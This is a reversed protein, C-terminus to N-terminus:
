ANAANTDLLVLRRKYAVAERKTGYDPSLISRNAIANDYVVWRGASNRAVHM